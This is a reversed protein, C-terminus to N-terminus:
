GRQHPPPGRARKKNRNIRQRLARPFVSASFADLAAMACDDVLAGAQSAAASRVLPSLASHDLDKSEEREGATGCM